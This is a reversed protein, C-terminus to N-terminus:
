LEHVKLDKVVYKHKLKFRGHSQATSFFWNQLGRSSVVKNYSILTTCVARNYLKGHPKFTNLKQTHVAKCHGGNFNCHIFINHHM